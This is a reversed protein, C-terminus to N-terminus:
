FAENHNINFSLSYREYSYDYFDNMEVRHKMYSPWMLFNGPEPYFQITNTFTENGLTRLQANNPTTKMELKADRTSWHNIELPNTFIIPSGSMVYITGSMISNPHNHENHQNEHVYKNGWLFFNIEREHNTHNLFESCIKRYSKIIVDQLEDFWPKSCFAKNIEPYFYTTYNRTPDNPDIKVTEELCTNLDYIIEKIPLQSYHGQFLTERFMPLTKYQM